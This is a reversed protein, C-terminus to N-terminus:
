FLDVLGKRRQCAPPKRLFTKDTFDWVTGVAPCDTASQKCSDIEVNKLSFIKRKNSLAKRFVECKGKEM